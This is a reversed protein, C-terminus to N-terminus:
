ILCLFALTELQAIEFSVINDACGAYNPSRAALRTIIDNHFFEM